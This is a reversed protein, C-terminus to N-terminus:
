YLEFDGRRVFVVTISVTKGDKNKATRFLYDGDGLGTSSVFGRGDITGATCTNKRKRENYTKYFCRWFWSEQAEESTNNIEGWYKEDFVGCMGGEVNVEEKSEEEPLNRKYKSHTVTIEVVRHTWRYRKSLNRIKAYCRYKGPLVNDLFCIGFNDDHLVVGPDALVVKDGLEITKTWFM